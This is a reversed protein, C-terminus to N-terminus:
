TEKKAKNKFTFGSAQLHDYPTCIASNKFAKGNLNFYNFEYEFLKQKDKVLAFPEKYGKGSVLSIEEINFFVNSGNM